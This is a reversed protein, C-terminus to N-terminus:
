RIRVGTARKRVDRPAFSEGAFAPDFARRRIQVGAPAGSPQWRLRVLSPSPNLAEQDRGPQMVIVETASSGPAQKPSLRTGKPLPFTGYYTPVVRKSKLPNKFAHAAHQPEMTSQGGVPLLTLDPPCVRRYEMDAFVGTDGAHHIKFGNELEVIYGYPDGGPGKSTPASNV